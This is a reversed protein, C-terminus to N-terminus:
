SGALGNTTGYRLSADALDSHRITTMANTPNAVTSHAFCDGDFGSLPAQM